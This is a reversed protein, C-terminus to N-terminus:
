ANQKLDMIAQAPEGDAKALAEKAKERTVGAQDMVLKIDDETFKEEEKIPENEKKVEKLSGLIQF